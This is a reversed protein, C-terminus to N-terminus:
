SQGLGDRVVSEIESLRRGIENTEGVLRDTLDRVRLSLALMATTQASGLALEAAARTRCETAQNMLNAATQEFELAADSVNIQEPM